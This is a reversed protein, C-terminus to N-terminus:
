TDFRIATSFNHLHEKLGKRAYSDVSIKHRLNTSISESSVFLLFQWAIGYYYERKIAAMIINATPDYTTHFYERSEELNM